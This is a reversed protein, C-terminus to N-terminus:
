DYIDENREERVRELGSTSPRASLALRLTGDQHAYSIVPAVNQMSGHM